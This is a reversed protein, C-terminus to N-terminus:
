KIKRPQKGLVKDVYSVPILLSQFIYQDYRVKEVNIHEDRKLITKIDMGSFESHKELLTGAHKVQLAFYKKGNNKQVVTCYNKRLIEKATSISVYTPETEEEPDVFSELARYVFDYLFSENNAGIGTSKVKKMLIHYIINEIHNEEEKKIWEPVVREIKKEGTAVALLARLWVFNDIDRGSSGFTQMQVETFDPDRMSQVHKEIVPWNKLLSDIMRTGLNQLKEKRPMSIFKGKKKLLPFTLIRDKIAQDTEMCKPFSISALFFMHRLHYRRPKGGFVKGSIAHGGRCATKLLNLVDRQEKETTYHEFEDLFGPKSDHGFTQKVAHSTTKDVVECFGSLLSYIFESFMSKGTGQAGSIYILPRWDLAQQFILLMVAATMYSIQSKDSWEWISVLENLEAFVDKLSNEAFVPNIKELNIWEKSSMRVKKNGFIPAILEKRELTKKHIAIAKMGSVVIWYDDILHIGQGIPEKDAIPGKKEARELIQGVIVKLAEQEKRIGMLVAVHANIGGPPLEELQRKYGVWVVRKGAYGYVEFDASLDIPFSSEAEKFVHNIAKKTFGNEKLVQVFDQELIEAELILPPKTVKYLIIKQAVQVAIRTDQPSRILLDIIERDSKRFFNLVGRKEKLKKARKQVEALNKRLYSEKKSKGMKIDEDPDFNLIYDMDIQEYNKFGIFFEAKIAEIQEEILGETKSLLFELTKAVYIKRDNETMREKTDKQHEKSDEEAVVPVPPLEEVTM